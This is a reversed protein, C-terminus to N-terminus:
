NNGTILENIRVSGIIHPNTLAIRKKKKVCLSVFNSLSLDNKELECIGM